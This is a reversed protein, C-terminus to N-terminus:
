YGDPLDLEPQDNVVQILMDTTKKSGDTLTVSKNMEPTFKLSAELVGENAEIPDLEVICNPFIFNIFEDRDECTRAKIFLKAHFSICDHPYNYGNAQPNYAGHMAKVIMEYNEEDFLTTATITTDRKEFRPKRKYWRTGLVTCKDTNVNNNIEIELDSIVESKVNDIQIEYDYGILPIADLLKKEYDDINIKTVREKSYVLSPEITTLEKGITMKLSSIITGTTIKEMFDDYTFACTASPMSKREGGWFEHVNRSEGDSGLHGDEVFNYNGLIYLLYQHFCKTDASTSIDGSPEPYGQRDKVVAMSGLNLLQNEDNLDPNHSTTMIHFQPEKGQEIADAGYTDEPVICFYNAM